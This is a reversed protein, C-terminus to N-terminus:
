ISVAFRLRKEEKAGAQLKNIVLAILIFGVVCLFVININESVRALALGLKPICLKVVGIVNEAYVIERDADPNDVGKTQFALAGSGDVNEMIGVVRHTVIANDSRIFTIDDGVQIGGPTVDKTIVLSGQPIESQMSGTLVHFGSYGFLSLGGVSKRSFVLTVLLVLVIITYFLINLAPKAFSKKQPAEAAKGADWKQPRVGANEAHPGASVSATCVTTGNPYAALCTSMFEQNIQELTKIM